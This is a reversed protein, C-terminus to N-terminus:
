PANKHIGTIALAASIIRKGSEQLKLILLFIFDIRGLRNIMKSM